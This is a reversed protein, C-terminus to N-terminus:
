TNDGLGRVTGDAKDRLKSTKRATPSIYCHSLLESLVPTIRPVVSVAGVLPFEDDDLFM